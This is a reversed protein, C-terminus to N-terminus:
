DPLVLQGLVFLSVLAGVVVTLLVSLAREQRRVMAVIGTVLGAVAAVAAVLAPGALWWNDNFADGAEQGNLVAAQMAVAALLFLGAFGVAWRGAATTPRWPRHAKHPVSTTEVVM